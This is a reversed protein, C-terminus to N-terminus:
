QFDILEVFYEDEGNKMLLRMEDNKDPKCFLAFRVFFQNYINKESNVSLIRFTGLCKKYVM